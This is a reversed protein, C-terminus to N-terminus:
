VQVDLHEGTYAYDMDESQGSAVKTSDQEQFNQININEPNSYNVGEAVKSYYQPQTDAQIHQMEQNYANPPKPLTKHMFFGASVREVIQAKEHVRRQRPSMAEINLDATSLYRGEALSSTGVPRGFSPTGPRLAGSEKFDVNAVRKSTPIISSIKQM